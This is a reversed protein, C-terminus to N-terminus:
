FFGRYSFLAVTVLCHWLLGFFNCYSYNLLAVVLRSGFGLLAVVDLRRQLRIPCRGRSCLGYAIVEVHSKNTQKM